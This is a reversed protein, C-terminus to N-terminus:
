EAIGVVTLDYRAPPGGLDYIVVEYSDVEGPLLRDKNIFQTETAVVQDQEDLVSVIVKVNRVLRSGRNLLQGSIRLNGADTYSVPNQVVEFNEEGYFTRLAFDAVRAAAALEYRVANAPRGGEFRLRFPASEHPQLVDQTLILSQESLSNGRMDFITGTLRVAEIATDQNNTVFGTINFGGDADVWHLYGTFSINGEHTLGAVIQGEQIIVDPNPRFTNIVTRLTNLTTDNADTVDAELISFYRGNPQMFINLIRPGITPYYRVGTVRRSGDAQDIVDGIQQWQYGAVDQPPLYSNAIQLFTERSMPEGTNVVYVTLRVVSQTGELQSFEVRVGNVDPLNNPIWSVPTRITFVGTQHRYTIFGADPASATAVQVLPENAPPNCATLAVLLAVWLGLFVRMVYFVKETASADAIILVKAIVYGVPLARPNNYM